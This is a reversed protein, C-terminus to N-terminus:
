TGRGGGETEGPFPNASGAALARRSNAMAMMEREYTRQADSLAARAVALAKDAKQVNHLAISRAQFADIAGQTWGHEDVRVAERDDAM